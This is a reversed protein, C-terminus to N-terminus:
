RQSSAIPWCNSLQHSKGADDTLIDPNFKKHFVFLSERSYTLQAPIRIRTIKLIFVIKMRVLYVSRVLVDLLKVGSKLLDFERRPPGCM